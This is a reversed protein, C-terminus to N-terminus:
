ALWGPVLRATQVLEARDDALQVGRSRVVDLLTQKPKRRACPNPASPPRSGTNAATDRVLVLRLLLSGPVFRLAHHIPAHRIQQVVPVRIRGRLDRARVPLARFVFRRRRLHFLFRVRPVSPPDPRHAHRTLHTCSVQPVDRSSLARRLPVPYKSFLAQRSYTRSQFFISLFFSGCKDSFARARLVPPSFYVFITVIHSGDWVVHMTDNRATYARKRM